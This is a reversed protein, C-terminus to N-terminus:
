EDEGGFYAILSVILSETDLEPLFLLGLYEYNSHIDVSSQEPVLDFEEAILCGMRKSMPLPNSLLLQKKEIGEEIVLVVDFREDEKIEELNKVVTHIPLSASLENLKDLTENSSSSLLLTSSSLTKTWEEQLYRDCELDLHELENVSIEDGSKKFYFDNEFSGEVVEYSSPFPHPYEAGKPFESINQTEKLRSAASVRSKLYSIKLDFDSDQSFHYVMSGPSAVVVNSLYAFNRSVYEQVAEAGSGARLVLSLWAIGVIVIIVTFAVIWYFDNFGKRSRIM